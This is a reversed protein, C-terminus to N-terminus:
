DNIRFIHLKFDAAKVLHDGHIYCRDHRIRFSEDILHAPHALRIAPNNKYIVEM